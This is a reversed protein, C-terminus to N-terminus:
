FLALGFSIVAGKGLSSSWFHLNPLLFVLEVLSLSGWVAPLKVNERATCYFWVVALYGFYSFIFMVSLYSLGFLYAFPWALFYIFTTSTGWLSFWDTTGSATHFYQFSDSTTAAAYLIYITCMLAHMFFMGWLFEESHINYRQRFVKILFANLMLILILVVIADM